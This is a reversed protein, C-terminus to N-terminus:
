RLTWPCWPETARAGSRRQTVTELGGAGKEQLQAPAAAAAPVLFSPSAPAEGRAPDGWRGEGM